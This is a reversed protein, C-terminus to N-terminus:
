GKQLRSIVEDSIYDFEQYEDPNKIKSFGKTIIEICPKHYEPSAEDFKVNIEDILGDSAQYVVELSVHEIDKKLKRLDKDVFEACNICRKM